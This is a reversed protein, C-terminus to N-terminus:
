KQLLKAKMRDIGKDYASNAKLSKATQYNELAEQWKAEDEYIRAINYYSSAQVTNKTPGDALAIAKRNAWLAEAEKGMKQYVLGLNSYAQSHEPNNNIAELYLRVSSEYNKKHYEKEGEKNLSDALSRQDTSVEPVSTLNGSKIIDNMFGGVLERSELDAFKNIDYFEGNDGIGFVVWTNGVRNPPPYFTRVLSTGIYVFVKARSTNSISISGKKNGESYNHVAYLYKKGPLKKNITITEPGYGDVDDVDLISEGGSKNSFFIHNGPFSIHSDLDSPLAGWDLVIRLGDLGEMHPSIAYTLNNCPCKVVLNSYGEKKVIMTVNSDDDFSPDMKAKGQNDTKKTLSAAGNKQLIVEAESIKQDKVVASLINVEFSKAREAAFFVCFIFLFSCIKESFIM